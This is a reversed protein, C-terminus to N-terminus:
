FNSSNIYPRMKSLTDGRMKRSNVIVIIPIIVLIFLALAFMIVVIWLLHPTDRYVTKFIQLDTNTSNDLLKAGGNSGYMILFHRLNYNVYVACRLGASGLVTNLIAASAPIAFEFRQVNKEKLTHYSKPLMIKDVPVDSHSDCYIIDVSHSARVFIRGRVGDTINTVYDIVGSVDIPEEDMTAKSLQVFRSLNGTTLHTVVCLMLAFLTVQKPHDM